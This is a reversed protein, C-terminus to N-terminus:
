FHADVSSWNLKPGNLFVWLSVEQLLVVDWDSRFRYTDFTSYGGNRGLCSCRLVFTRSELLKMM